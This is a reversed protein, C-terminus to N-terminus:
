SKLMGKLSHQPDSGNREYTSREWMFDDWRLFSDFWHRLRDEGAQGTYSTLSVGLPADCDIDFHTGAETEGVLRVAFRAGERRAIDIRVRRFAEDGYTGLLGPADRWAGGTLSNPTRPGDYVISLGDLSRVDRETFVSVPLELWQTDVGPTMSLHEDEDEPADYMFPEAELSLHLTVVGDAEQGKWGGDREFLDLSCSLIKPSYSIGEYTMHFYSM